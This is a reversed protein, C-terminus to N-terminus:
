IKESLQKIYTIVFASGWGLVWCGFLSAIVQLVDSETM